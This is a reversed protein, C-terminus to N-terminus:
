FTYFESFFLLYKSWKSKKKLCLGGKDTFILFLSVGREGKDSLDSIPYGGRGGKDSIFLFQSVGGEGRHSGYYTIPGMDLYGVTFFFIKNFFVLM